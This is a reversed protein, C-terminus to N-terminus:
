SPPDTLTLTKNLAAQVVGPEPEQRVIIWYPQSYYANPRGPIRQEAETEALALIVGAGVAIKYVKPDDIRILEVRLDPGNLGIGEDFRFHRGKPMPLQERSQVQLGRAELADALDTVNNITPKTDCGMAAFVSLLIVGTIVRM